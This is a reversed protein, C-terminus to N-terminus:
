SIGGQGPRPLEMIRQETMGFDDVVVVVRSRQIEVIRFNGLAQGRRLRYVRGGEDGAVSGDRHGLVAISTTPDSSFVVGILRVDEFRPGDQDGGLLGVFPNRRQYRPYVFVEREFVLDATDAQQAPPPEPPTQQAGQAEAVPGPLAMLALAFLGPALVSSSLTRTM